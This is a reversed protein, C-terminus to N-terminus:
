IFKSRVFSEISSSVYELMDENLGPYVGIWFANNMIINTNTLKGVVRYDLNKFYPQNIINGAFLPRTDIGRQTLFHNLENLSFQTNEKITLPFGFWSPDSDHTESPLIFYDDLDSFRNKLWRFNSKRKNIFNELRQLQALGVSAQMDTIKLNYGLESYIFKHDYGEPMEGLKWCFRKGCTNNHGTPCFCDRGWDRFSEVNRKIMPNNTVVAGGEGMTIHHAPYFSIAAVDGFTGVFKNRFKSGLADCCDEIVWLDYKEALEMVVDLDFPNGLTHALMIAKTKETIADEIKNPDINYTPLEVDVFVPILGNQVIPNVTTPFCAAVTIVEDGPRLSQSGLKDSTLSSLSLLNASSGSNTSIVFSSNLFQALQKEFEDNFRGATLWFDLSSSVLMKLETSGYVRGAVPVNSKGIEFKKNLHSLSAYDEVLSLIQKRIEKARPDLDLKPNSLFQEWDLMNLLQWM